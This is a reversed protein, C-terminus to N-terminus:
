PYFLKITPLHAVDDDVYLAFYFFVFGKLYFYILSM